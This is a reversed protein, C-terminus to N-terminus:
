PARSHNPGMELSFLEGAPTRLPNNEGNDVVVALGPESSYPGIITAQDLQVRMGELSEYFDIADVDPNFEGFQDSDIVTPIMRGNKGLIVPEPLTQNEGELTIATAVIETTALETTATAYEKVQGSVSVKNGVAM